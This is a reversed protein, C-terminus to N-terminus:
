RDALRYVRESSQANIQSVIYPVENRAKFMDQLAAVDHGNVGDLPRM